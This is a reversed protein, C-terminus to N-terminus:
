DNVNIAKDPRFILSMIFYILMIFIGAAWQFLIILLFSIILFSIKIKNKNWSFTKFKLSILSIRSILLLSLLLSLIILIKYDTLQHNIFNYIINKNGNQLLVASLSAIFLGNAPTPLGIFYENQKKDNNFKALRIASTIPILFAIFPIFNINDYNVNILNPSQSIMRYL